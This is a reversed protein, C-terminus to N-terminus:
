TSTDALPTSLQPGATRLDGDRKTIQREDFFEFIPVAHKRTIGWQERLEGVTATSHTQFYAALGQRLFEVANRDIAMLPSLKVLQGDDLGVQILSEIDKLSVQHKEALEKHTPPAKATTTFEALLKDLLVRQKQSLEAGSPLGVRDGRRVIERHSVMDDLLTELVVPSADHSMAALIGSLPVQLAPRRRELEQRIRRAMRQKLKGFRQATVYCPVMSGARVVQKRKM